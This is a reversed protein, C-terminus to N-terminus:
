RVPQSQRGRAKMESTARANPDKDQMKREKAGGSEGPNLGAQFQPWILRGQLASIYWVHACNGRQAFNGCTCIKRGANPPQAFCRRFYKGPLEGDIVVCHCQFMLELNSTSVKVPGTELIAAKQLARTLDQGGLLLLNIMHDALPKSITALAAAVKDTAQARLVWFSTNVSKMEMFHSNGKDKAAFYETASNQGLRHLADGTLYVTEPGSPWLICPSGPSSDVVLVYLLSTKFVYMLM